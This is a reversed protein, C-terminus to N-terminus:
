TLATFLTSPNESALLHCFLCSVSLRSEAGVHPTQHLDLRLVVRPQAELEGSIFFFHCTMMTSLTQPVSASYAGEVWYALPEVVGKISRSSATDLLLKIAPKAEECLGAFM